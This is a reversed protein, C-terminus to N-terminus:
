HFYVEGFCNLSPLIIIRSSLLEASTPHLNFVDDLLLVAYLLAKCIAHTCIHLVKDQMVYGISMNVLVTPFKETFGPSFMGTFQGRAFASVRLAKNLSFSFQSYPRWYNILNM